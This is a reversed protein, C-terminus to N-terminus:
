ITGPKKVRAQIFHNETDFRSYRTCLCAAKPDDFFITKAEPDINCKAYPCFLKACINNRQDLRNMVMIEFNTYGNHELAKTLRAIAIAIKKSESSKLQQSNIICLNILLLKFFLKHM